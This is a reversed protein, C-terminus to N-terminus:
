RDSKTQKPPTYKKETNKEISGERTAENIKRRATGESVNEMEMIAMVLANYGIPGIENVLAVVNETRVKPIRDPDPYLEFVGAPNRYLCLDDPIPAYRPKASLRSYDPPKGEDWRGLSIISEAMNAWASSGCLLHMPDMKVPGPKKLNHILLFATNTARGMAKVSQTFDRVVEYSNLDKKMALSVPDIICLDVNKEILIRELWDRDERFDLCLGYAELFIINTPDIKAGWAKIQKKVIDQLSAPDNELFCYLVRANQRQIPFTSVLSTGSVISLSMQLALTTKGAKAYGGIITFGLGPILGGGILMPKKEMKMTVFINGDIPEQRPEGTIDRPRAELIRDYGRRINEIDLSLDNAHVAQQMYLRREAMEMVMVAYHEVNAATPVADIMEALNSVTKQDCNMEATVTLLDAVKGEDHLKRLAKYTEQNRKNYFHNPELGTEIANDIPEAGAEPQMLAGLVAREADVNNPLVGEVNIVTEEPQKTTSKEARSRKPNQKAM